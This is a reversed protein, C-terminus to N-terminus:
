TDHVEVQEAGATEEETKGLHPIERQFKVVQM